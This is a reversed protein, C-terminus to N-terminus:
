FSEFWVDFEKQKAIFPLSLQYAFMGIKPGLFPLGFREYVVQDIVEKKKGSYDWSIVRVDYERLLRKATEHVATAGGGGYFPNKIDDYTSIYITQKKNKM